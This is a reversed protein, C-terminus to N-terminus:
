IKKIVQFNDFDEVALRFCDIDIFVNGCECGINDRTISSIADNCKKCLYYIDKGKQADSSNRINTQVIKYNKLKM